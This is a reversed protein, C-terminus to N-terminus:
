KLEKDIAEKMAEIAANFDADNKASWYGPRSFVSIVKLAREKLLQYDGTTGCEPCYDLVGGISFPQLTKRGM